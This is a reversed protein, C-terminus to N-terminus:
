LRSLLDSDVSHAAAKGVPSGPGTESDTPYAGASFPDLAVVARPMSLTFRTGQGPSSRLRVEHFPLKQLSRRVLYLGLGLGERHRSIAPGSQYFADWVRDLEDPAMGIGNDAVRIVARDGRALAQMVIGRVAPRGDARVAPPRSFKVANGVLNVLVRFLAEGGTHAALTPDAVVLRLELGRRRCEDEFVWSVRRLLPELLVDGVAGAGPADQRSVLLLQDISAKLQGLGSTLQSAQQDVSVLDNQALRLRLIECHLHAAMLPQRLDHGIAALVRNKDAIAQEAAVTRQRLEAEQRATRQQELFLRRERSEISRALAFGLANVLALNVITRLDADHEFPLRIGMYYALAGTGLGIAVLVTSPLRIFVYLVFLAVLLTPSAGAAHPGTLEKTTLAVAAMALTALGGFILGYHSMVARQFWRTIVYMTALLLVVVLRPLLRGRCDGHLCDFVFFTTYAAIGVLCVVGLSALGAKRAAALVTALPADVVTEPPLRQGQGTVTKNNSHPASM